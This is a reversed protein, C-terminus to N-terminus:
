KPESTKTIQAVDERSLVKAHAYADAYHLAGTRGGVGTYTQGTLHEVHGDNFLLYQDHPAVIRPSIGWIDPNHPNAWTGVQWGYQKLTAVDHLIAKSVQGDSYNPHLDEYAGWIYRHGEAMHTDIHPASPQPFPPQAPVQEPNPLEYYAKPTAHHGFLYGM